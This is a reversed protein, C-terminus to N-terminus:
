LNMSQSQASPAALIGRTAALEQERLVARVNLARGLLLGILQDHRQGCPFSLLNPGQASTQLEALKVLGQAVASIRNSKEICDDGEAALQYAGSPDPVAWLKRNSKRDFVLLEKPVLESGTPLKCAELFVRRCGRLHEGRCPFRLLHPRNEVFEMGGLVVMAHRIFEARKNAELHPSYTHVLFEPEHAWDQRYLGISINHCHPDMSVLEIRQGIDTTLMKM